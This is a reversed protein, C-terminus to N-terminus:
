TVTQPRKTSLSKIVKQGLFTRRNSNNNNVSNNNNNVSNNNNNNHKMTTIRQKLQKNEKTVQQYSNKAAKLINKLNYLQKDKEFIIIKFNEIYKEIEELM